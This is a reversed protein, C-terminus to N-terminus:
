CFPWRQRMTEVYKGCTEKSDFMMAPTLSEADILSVDRDKLLTRDFGGETELQYGEPKWDEINQIM